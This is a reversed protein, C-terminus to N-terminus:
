KKGYTFLLYGQQTKRREKDTLHDFFGTVDRDHKGWFELGQYFGVSREQIDRLGAANFYEAMTLKADEFGYKWRGALKEKYSGVRYPLCAANPVLSMVSKKSIRASENMICGITEDDFHELLGSSFVADVSGDAQPLGRTIDACIFEGPLGLRDFLERAFEINDSSFDILIVRRQYAALIASLEATGSGLEVVVDGPATHALLPEVWVPFDSGKIRRVIQALLKQKDGILV